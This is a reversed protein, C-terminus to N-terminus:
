QLARENSQEKKIKHLQIEGKENTIENLTRTCLMRIVTSYSVGLRNKLENALLDTRSDIWITKREGKRKSM